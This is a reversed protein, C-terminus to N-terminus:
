SQVQKENQIQKIIAKLCELQAEEYTLYGLMSEDVITFDDLLKGAYYRFRYGVTNSASVMIDAIYYMFKHKERLWDFAQQWLPALIYNQYLDKLQVTVFDGNGTNDTAGTRSLRQTTFTYYAICPEDFGLKNLAEAIVYPVFETKIDKM